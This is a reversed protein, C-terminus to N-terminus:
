SPSSKILSILLSPMSINGTGLGPYVEVAQDGGVGAAGCCGLFFMDWNPFYLNNRM